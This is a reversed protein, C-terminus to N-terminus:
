VWIRWRLAQTWESRTKAGDRLPRRQSATRHQPWRPHNKPRDPSARRKEFRSQLPTAQALSCQDHEGGEGIGLGVEDELPDESSLGVLV